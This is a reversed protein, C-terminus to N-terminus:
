PRWDLDAHQLITGLVIPLEQSAFASPPKRSVFRGPDCRAPDPWLQSNAQLAPSYDMLLNRNADLDVDNPQVGVTTVFHEIAAKV